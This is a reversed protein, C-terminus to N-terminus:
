ILISTFYDMLFILVKSTGDYPCKMMEQQRRKISKEKYVIYFLGAADSLLFADNILDYFGSYEENPQLKPTKTINKLDDKYSFAFLILLDIIEISFYNSFTVVNFIQSM